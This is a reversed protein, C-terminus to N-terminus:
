KALLLILVLVVLFGVVAVAGVAPGSLGLVSPLISPQLRARFAEADLSTQASPAPPSPVSAPGPPHHSRPPPVSPGSPAQPKPGSAAGDYSPPQFSIPATATIAAPLQFPPQGAPGSAPGPHGGPPTQSPLYAPPRLAEAPVARQPGSADGVAFKGSQLAQDLKRAEDLKATAAGMGQARILRVAEAALMAADAAMRAAVAKREARVAAARAEEGRRVAEIGLRDAEAVLSEETPTAQFASRDLVQVDDAHSVRSPDTAAGSTLTSTPGVDSPPPPPPLPLSSPPPPPRVTSPARPVAPGSKPPGAQQALAMPFPLQPIDPSPPIVPRTPARSGGPNSPPQPMPVPGARLIPKGGAGRDKKQHPETPLESDHDAVDAAAGEYVPGARPAGRRVIEQKVGTTRDSSDEDVILDPSVYGPRAAPVRDQLTAKADVPGAARIRARSRLAEIEKDGNQVLTEAEEGPDGDDVIRALGQQQVAAVRLEVDTAEEDPTPARPKRARPPDVMPAFKKLQQVANAARLSRPDAAARPMPNTAPTPASIPQPRPPPPTRPGAPAPESKREARGTHETYTPVRPPLERGVKKPELEGAIAREFWRMQRMANRRVFRALAEENDEQYGHVSLWEEFRQAIEYASQFRMAPDRQLCRNVVSVLEKDIKPRLERLDAPPERSTIQVMDFDNKAIWPRRGAFLEFLLVGLSFLDARADISDTQAQEPAMYTPEGKRMGTLTKTLRQKAKALGFDAIKVDGNFGALVNGPTLDRHVLHLLEGNPARLAHAAALGRCLRSAIFVVMRETFVEGTEFITKMLRLLSVGQVLEVALYAGQADNGWGAVEVVNPHKLSATMWVEDLFQNAFAPDEAIHPHLRKVALLQGARPHPASARCLDVRATAGVAIEALVQFPIAGATQGM